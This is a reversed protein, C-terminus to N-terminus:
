RSPWLCWSSCRAPRQLPLHAHSQHSVATVLHLATATRRGGARGAWRDWGPRWLTHRQALDGCRGGARGSPPRANASALLPPSHAAALPPAWNSPWPRQLPVSIHLSPASFGKCSRLQCGIVEHCPAGAWEFQRRQRDECSAPDRTSGVPCACPKRRQLLAEECVRGPETNGPLGMRSGGRSQAGGLRAYLAAIAGWGRQAGRGGGGSSGGGAGAGDFWGLRAMRSCSPAPWLHLVVALAHHQAHAREALHQHGSVLLHSLPREAKGTTAAPWADASSWSCSVCVMGLRGAVTCLRALHHGDLLDLHPLLPLHAGALLRAPLGDAAAGAAQRAVWMSGTCAVM